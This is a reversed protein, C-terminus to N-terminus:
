RKINKKIKEELLAPYFPKEIVDDAYMEKERDRLSYGTMLLLPIHKTKNDRKLLPLLDKQLIDVLVLEPPMEKVMELAEDKSSTYRVEYSRKELLSKLLSMTEVDNNVVLIKDM